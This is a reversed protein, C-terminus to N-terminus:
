GQKVILGRLGAILDLLERGLSPPNSTSVGTPELAYALKELEEVGKVEVMDGTTAQLHDLVDVPVLPIIVTDKFYEHIYYAALVKYHSLGALLAYGSEPKFGGTVNLLVIDGQSAEEKVARALSILGRVMSGPVGFGSVPKADEVSGGLLDRLYHTLIRAALTGAGTDTHLVVVRDVRSPAEGGRGCIGLWPAMANVEASINCPDLRLKALAEQYAVSNPTAHRSCELDEPSQPEARSCRTLVDGVEGAIRRSTNRLISTGSVIIHMVGADM